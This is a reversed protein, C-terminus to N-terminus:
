TSIFGGNEPVGEGQSVLSVGNFSRYTETDFGIM